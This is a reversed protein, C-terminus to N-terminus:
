ADLPRRPQRLSVDRARFTRRDRSRNPLLQQRARHRTGSSRCQGHHGPGDGGVMRPLQQRAVDAARRHGPTFIWRCLRRRRHLAAVTRGPRAGRITCAGTAAALVGIMASVSHGVFISMRSVWNTASRSCTPRTATSRATSPGITRRGSRLPRRRCSRVARRSVDGRFGAGHLAVHEPRLWLRACVAHGQSGEGSVRVNNRITVSMIRM